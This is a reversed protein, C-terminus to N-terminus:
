RRITLGGPQYMRPPPGPAEHSWTMGLIVRQHLGFQHPNVHVARASPTGGLLGGRDLYDLLPSPVFGVKTGDRLHIGLARHDHPNHPERVVDLPDNARLRGNALAAQGEPHYRLGHLPIEAYVTQTSLDVAPEPYFEFRDAVRQGLSRGLVTLDSSDEDLGHSALWEARDSRRGSMLRSSFLPFLVTSTYTASADPFGPIARFGEQEEVRPYYNFEFVGERTQALHGMLLYRRSQANQWTVLVSETHAALSPVAKNLRTESM